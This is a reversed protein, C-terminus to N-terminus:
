SNKPRGGKKGHKRKRINADLQPKVLDFLPKVSSCLKIQKEFLGYECLADVYNSKDEVSLSQSARYFSEYFVFSDHNTSSGGSHIAKYIQKRVEDLGKVRHLDNFDSCGGDNCLTAFEPFVATGGIHKAAEVAKIHGINQERSHDDDGAIIIQIGAYKASLEKAVKLINGASFCVAVPEGTAEHISAGTAYGECLILVSDPTGIPFFCGKTRGGKTFLKKGDSHITQVNVIEGDADTMPVLLSSSEIYLGYSKVGKKQLYPHASVDQTSARSIRDNVREKTREQQKTAEDEILQRQKEQQRAHEQKQEPTLHSQEVSCFKQHIGRKWCGFVGAQFNGNDYAVYWSNKHKDGNSKFRHIQGDCTIGTPPTIGFEQMKNKIIDM